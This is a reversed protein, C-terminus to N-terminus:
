LPEPSVNILIAGSLDLHTLQRIGSGLSTQSKFDPESLECDDISLTELPVKLCRLLQDMQGEFFSSFDLSLVCLCELNLFQSTFPNIM